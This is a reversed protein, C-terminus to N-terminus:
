SVSYLNDFLCLFLFTGSSILHCYVHGLFENVANEFFRADFVFKDLKFCQSLRNVFNKRNVRFGNFGASIGALDFVIQLAKNRERRAVLLNLDM